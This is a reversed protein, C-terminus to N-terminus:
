GGTPLLWIVWGAAILTFVIVILRFFWEDSARRKM